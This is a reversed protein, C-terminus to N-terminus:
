EPALRIRRPASAPSSQAARQAEFAEQAGLLTGRQQYWREFFAARTRALAADQRFRDSIEQNTEGMKTVSPVSSLYQRADFDSAAGSGEPRMRPALESTISEMEQFRPDFTGAIGRAVDGLVPMAFGPGTWAGRNLEDFRDLRREMQSLRNAEDRLSQIQALDASTTTRTPAPAEVREWQRGNWRIREGTQPNRATMGVYVAESM